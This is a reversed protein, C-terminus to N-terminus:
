SELAVSKETTVAVADLTNQRLLWDEMVGACKEWGPEYMLWHTQDDLCQYEAQPYKKAINAVVRAPILLDDAAGIVLTPLTVKTADVASAKAGDLFPLAVEVVLKGSEYVMREYCRHQEDEPLKAFSSFACSAFDPRHPKRWFGWTKLLGLFSKIGGWTIAPVDNPPAPALLILGAALGREAVKQAVLGGMSHGVVIPKEPLTQILAEIDDVYDLLSTTGLEAPLQTGTEIQEASLQHHRLTPTHVSYGQATFREKMSQWYWGGGWMGHILVLTKSM